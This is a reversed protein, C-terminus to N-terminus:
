DAYKPRTQIGLGALKLAKTCSEVEKPIKEDLAKFPGDFNKYTFPIIKAVM